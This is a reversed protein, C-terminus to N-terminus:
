TLKSLPDFSAAREGVYIGYDAVFTQSTDSAIRKVCIVSRCTVGIMTGNEFSYSIVMRSVRRSRSFLADPRRPTAALPRIPWGRIRPQRPAEPAHDRQPECGQEHWSQGNRAAPRRCCSRRTVSIFVACGAQDFLKSWNGPIVCLHPSDNSM